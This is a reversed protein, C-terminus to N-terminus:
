TSQILVWQSCAGLVQACVSFLPSGGNTIHLGGFTKDCDPTVCLPSIYLPLVLKTTDVKSVKYTREM